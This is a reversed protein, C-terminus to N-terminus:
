SPVMWRAIAQSISLLVILCDNNGLLQQVRRQATRQNLSITRVEEGGLENRFFPCSIVLDNSRGDGPDDEEVASPSSDEQNSRVGGSAASAGTTVNRRRTLSNQAKIVDYLSVTISQVDYHLLTKRRMREQQGPDSADTGVGDAAGAAASSAAVKVDDAVKGRLKKLLGASGSDIVSKARLKRDKSKTKTKLRPSHATESAAAAAAQINPDDLSVSTPPGPQPPLQRLVPQQTPQTPPQRFHSGHPLNQQQQQSQVHSSPMPQSTVTHQTSFGGERLLFSNQQAPTLADLSNASGYERRLNTNMLSEQGADLAELELSSNSRYLSHGPNLSAAPASDRKPPTSELVSGLTRVPGAGRRPRSKENYSNRLEIFGSRLKAKYYADSSAATVGARLPDAPRIPDAAVELGNSAAATYRSSRPVTGESDSAVARTFLDDAHTPALVAASGASRYSARDLGDRPFQQNGVSM